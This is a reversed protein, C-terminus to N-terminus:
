RTYEDKRGQRLRGVAKPATAGVFVKAADERGTVAVDLTCADLNARNTVGAGVCVARAREFREGGVDKAYFPQRPIGSERREGCPSLLSEKANVRWSDAFHHYLAEFPFPNTLVKGDRAAIQNVNGGVNALLGHVNAPWRGLGVRVDIWGPTPLNAQARVWNGAEDRLLYANGNRTVDVGNFSISKGDALDESKGDIYLEAQMSERVPALCIAVRTKGMQTAVAHNVSANPWTPAGSVQRTQVLFDRGIQALVFDGSAQFDYLLGAFTGLHTDGVTSAAACNSPSGGASSEDFIVAPGPASSSPATPGFSLNNTEGTFGTALCNPAQTGGYVVRTRTVLNAGSNFNAQGGGATSGGAGFVNFEAANWGTSANVTNDGVFSHLAGGISLAISDSATSANGTLVVQALGTVPQLPVSVAGSSNKWCYIDSSGSFSFQNWNGGAPCTADYKILWYQIFLSGSTGDTLYVFQEWAKCGVNPSGNCSTSNFQNTNVQLSYANAVPTGSNGVLGTESTVGGVTDFSGTASSILGTPAGASIDNTNGVVEPALGRRPTMPIDPPKVCPVEKWQRDPENAQFCGKKKPIAKESLFKRWRERAEAQRPSLKQEAGSTASAAGQPPAPVPSAASATGALMTSVLATAILIPRSLAFGAIVHRNM